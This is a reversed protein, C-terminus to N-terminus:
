KALHEKAGLFANSFANAVEIKTKTNEIFKVYGFTAREDKHFMARMVFEISAKVSAVELCISMLWTGYTARTQHFKFHQLFKLGAARGDHRIKVM